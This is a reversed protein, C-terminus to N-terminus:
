RRARRYLFSLTRRGPQLRWRWRARRSRRRRWSHIAGRSRSGSSSHARDIAVATGDPYTANLTAAARPILAARPVFVPVVYGHDRDYDRM